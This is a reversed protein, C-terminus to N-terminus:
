FILSELDLYVKLFSPFFSLSGETKGVSGEQHSGWKPEGNASPNLASSLALSFSPLGASLWLWCPHGLTSHTQESSPAPGWCAYWACHHLICAAWIWSPSCVAYDVPITDGPTPCHVVRTHLHVQSPDLPLLMFSVRTLCGGQTPCRTLLKRVHSSGGVLQVSLRQGTVSAAPFVDPTRKRRSTARNEM